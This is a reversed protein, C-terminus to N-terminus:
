LNKKKLRISLYLNGEDSVWNNNRRGRGKTQLNALYSTGEVEGKLAGNFAVDNTSTCVDLINLNIDVM